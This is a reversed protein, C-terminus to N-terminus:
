AWNGSPNTGHLWKCCQSTFRDPIADCAQLGAVQRALERLDVQGASLKCGHMETEVLGPCNCGNWKKWLMRGQYKVLRPSGNRAQSGYLNGKRFWGNRSASSHNGYGRASHDCRSMFM